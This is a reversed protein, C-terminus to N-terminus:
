NIGAAEHFALAENIRILENYKALRESRSFGGIKIQDAGWGVCLHAVSVDESDGSRAAFVVKLGAARASKIASYAETVTGVQNPKILAATVARQSAAKCIRDASTTLFDDGLIQCVDGCRDTLTVFSSWDDEALPDEVSFISYEEIWKQVKEIMREPSIPASSGRLNYKGNKWFHTAAIDLSIALDVGARFGASEIARITEEMGQSDDNFHPWNAGDDAPGAFFKARQQAEVAARFVESCWELGEVFSTAGIPTVMFDQVNTTGQAHEGGGFIQIHPMPMKEQDRDRALYRWLPLRHFRAAANVCAISAAITTNSGIRAKNPTGDLDIIRRDIEEQDIVSCGILADRIEGNAANIAKQVGRGGFADGGDRLELAEHSGVSVGACAISRGSLGDELFVDIELTPRGRSDWVQRAKLDVIQDNM